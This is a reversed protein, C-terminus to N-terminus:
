DNWCSHGKVYVVDLALETPINPFHISRSDVRQGKKTVKVVNVVDVRVMVEQLPPQM